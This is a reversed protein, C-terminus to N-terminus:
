PVLTNLAKALQNFRDGLEQINRAAVLGGIPDEPMTKLLQINELLLAHLHIYETHWPRLSEPVAIRNLEAITTELDQNIRDLASTTPNQFYKRFADAIAPSTVATIAPNATPSISQQYATVETATADLPPIAFDSPLLNKREEEVYAAVEEEQSLGETIQGTVGAYLKYRATYSTQESIGTAAELYTTFADNPEAPITTPMVPELIKQAITKLSPTNAPFATTDQSSYWWALLFIGVALFSIAVWTAPSSFPNKM